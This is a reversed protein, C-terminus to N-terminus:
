HVSQYYAANAAGLISADGLLDSAMIEMGHDTSGAGPNRMMLRETKDAVDPLFYKAYNALGGSIIIAEPMFIDAINALGIALHEKFEDIAHKAVNDNDIFANFIDAITLSDSAYDINDRSTEVSAILRVTRMLGTASVYQEWCGQKGCSCTRGHADIVMHGLESNMVMKGDCMIGSGIGTGLTLVVVSQRGYARGATTEGLLAVDADNALVFKAYQVKQAISSEALAKKIGDLLAVNKWGLNPAYIVQGKNINVQGPAGIGVSALLAGRKDLWIVCQEILYAIYRIADDPDLSKDPDKTSVRYAIRNGGLPNTVEVLGSAIGTGGIDMGLAFSKNRDDRDTDPTQRVNPQRGGAHRHNMDWTVDDMVIMDLDNLGVHPGIGNGFSGIDDLILYDLNNLGQNYLDWGGFPDTDGNTFADFM